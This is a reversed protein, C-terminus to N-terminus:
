TTTGVRLTKRILAVMAGYVHQRQRERQRAHAPHVAGYTDLWRFVTFVDRWALRPLEVYRDRKM